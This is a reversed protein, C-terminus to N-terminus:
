ALPFPLYPVFNTALSMCVKHYTCTTSLYLQLFMPSTGDRHEVLQWHPVNEFKMKRVSQKRCDELNFKFRLGPNLAVVRM